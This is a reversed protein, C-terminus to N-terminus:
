KHCICNWKEQVSDGDVIIIQNDNNKVISGELNTTKRADCISM